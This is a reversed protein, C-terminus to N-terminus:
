FTPEIDFQFVKETNFDKKIPTSLKAIAVDEIVGNKISHLVIETIYTYPEDLITNLYNGNSQLATPNNTYNYEYNLLRVFVRKKISEKESTFLISSVSFATTSSATNFRIDRGQNFSSTSVNGYLVIIGFDYFIDGIGTTGSYIAGRYMGNFLQKNGDRYVNGNINLSLSSVAINTGVQTRDITIVSFATISSLAATRPFYVDSFNLTPNLAQTPNQGYFYNVVHNYISATIGSITTSQKMATYVKAKSSVVLSSVSSLTNVTLATSSNSTAYFAKSATVTDKVTIIDTPKIPTYIM